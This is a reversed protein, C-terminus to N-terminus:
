LGQRRAFSLCLVREMGLCYLSGSEEPINVFAKLKCYEVRKQQYCCCCGNESKPQNCAPIQNSVFLCIKVLLIQRDVPRQIKYIVNRQNTDGAWGRIGRRGIIKQSRVSCWVDCRERTGHM